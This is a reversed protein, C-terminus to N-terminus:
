FRDLKEHMMKSTADHQVRKAVNVCCQQVLAHAYAKASQAGLRPM